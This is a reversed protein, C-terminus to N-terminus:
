SHVNGGSYIHVVILGSQNFVDILPEFPERREAFVILVVVGAFVVAVGVKFRQQNVVFHDNRDGCAFQIKAGPLADDVGSNSPWRSLRRITFTIPSHFVLRQDDTTLSCRVAWFAVGECTKEARALHPALRVCDLSRRKGRDGFFCENINKV